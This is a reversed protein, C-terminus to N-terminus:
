RASVDNLSWDYAYGAIKGAAAIARAKEPPAYRVLHAKLATQDGFDEAFWTYISSLRLGEGTVTVARPHAIFDRAAADLQAELAAGNFAERALNPCGISACNVAYHVRPDKFTPRMTGHEIDDLSMNKGEVTVRKTRWPGILAKPDLFAGTSKIDRISKVPYRDLVVDITIANYLNAWFAFADARNLASPKVGALTEIYRDLAARDTPSAKWGAYDVRNLGDAGARVYRQLLTNWAGHDPAAALAGRPVLAAVVGGTVVARRSPARYDIM